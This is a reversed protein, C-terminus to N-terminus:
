EKIDETDDSSNVDVDRSEAKENMAKQASVALKSQINELKKKAKEAKTSAKIVKKLQDDYKQRLEGAKEEALRVDYQAKALKSDAKYENIQDQTWSASYYGNYPKFQVKMVTLIIVYALGAVFLVASLAQSVRINNIMLSDTRLSEIWFRGFGYLAVYLAFVGGRVKIRKRIAMLAIFVLVNWASEYFFTAQFWEGNINVGAPFWQWLPDTILSGHAEQNVFNGWRGIAQSIVLSPAAIDLMDGINIRRWAKFVIAAIVGGIVAGYIALGGEWVAIIKLLNGAYSEWEFIVYYLRAGVIAIPIALLMFDLVVESRFGRRKAEIVGLVVGLILAAAIIIGYWRVQINGVSFAVPNTSNALISLVNGGM